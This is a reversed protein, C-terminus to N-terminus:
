RRLAHNLLEHIAHLPHVAIRASRTQGVLQKPYVGASVQGFAGFTRAGDGTAFDGGFFHDRGGVEREGVAWFFEGRAGIAIPGLDGDPAFRASLGVDDFAHAFVTTPADDEFQGEERGDLAAGFAAALRADSVGRKARSPHNPFSFRRQFDFQM